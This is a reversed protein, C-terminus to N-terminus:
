ELSDASRFIPDEALDKSVDHWKSAVPINLKAFHDKIKEIMKERFYMLEIIVSAYNLSRSLKGKSEKTRV